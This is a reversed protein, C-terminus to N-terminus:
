WLVQTVSVDVGGSDMKEVLYELETDLEKQLYEKDWPRAGSMTPATSTGPRIVVDYRVIAACSVSRKDTTRTRVKELHITTEDSVSIWHNMAYNVAMKRLQQQAAATDCGLDPDGCGALPVALAAIWALKRLDMLVDAFGTRM